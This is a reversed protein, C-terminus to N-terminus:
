SLLSEALTLSPFFPYPCVIRFHILYWIDLRCLIVDALLLPSTEAVPQRHGAGPPFVIHRHSKPHLLRKSALIVFIVVVFFQFRGLNISQCVPSTTTRSCVALTKGRLIRHLSCLAVFFFGVIRRWQTELMSLGIM